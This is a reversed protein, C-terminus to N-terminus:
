NSHLKDKASKQPFGRFSNHTDSLISSESRGFGIGSGCSPCNICGGSVKFSGGVKKRTGLQRKRGGSGVVSAVEKLGGNAAHLMAGLEPDLVDLMPAAKDLIRSGAKAGKKVVKKVRKATNVTKRVVSKMDGGKQTKYSAKSLRMADKYSVGNAAQYKKVHSIWDSM